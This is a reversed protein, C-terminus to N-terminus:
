CTVQLPYFIYKSIWLCGRDKHTESKGPSYNTDIHKSLSWLINHELLKKYWKKLFITKLLKVYIIGIFPNLLM